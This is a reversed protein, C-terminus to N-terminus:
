KEKTLKNMLWYVWDFDERIIRLPPPPPPLPPKRMEKANAEISEINLDNLADDEWKPGSNFCLGMNDMGEMMVPTVIM